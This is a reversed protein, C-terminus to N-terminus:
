THPISRGVRTIATLIFYTLCFTIIVGATVWIPILILFV